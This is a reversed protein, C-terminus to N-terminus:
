PHAPNGSAPNGSADNGHDDPEPTILLIPEDDPSPIQVPENFMSLTFDVLLDVDDGFAPSLCSECDVKFRDPLLSEQDIFLQGRGRIEVGPLKEETLTEIFERMDMRFTIHYFERGDITEDPQRDLETLQEDAVGPKLLPKLLDLFVAGTENYDDAEFGYGEEAIYEEDDLRLFGQREGSIEFTGHARDPLDVQSVLRFPFAVDGEQFKGELEVRLTEVRKMQELSM